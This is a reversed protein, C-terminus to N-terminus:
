SKSKLHSLVEHLQAVVAAGEGIAGGVRKVSGSRADGVAFVRAINSELPLQGNTNRRGSSNGGTLVFGKADLDIGSNKLWATAPDVGIFIFLNSIQKDVQHDTPNHRWCIRELRGSASGSLEVLETETHVDINDAAKIRDILYQSMNESLSKERVLMHIRSVHRCLFAAAQGASNGGGIIAVEQDRCLRAEIPSAWYWVGRGEFEKLNRAAPRRYHAGCAIVVAMASVQRAGSRILFTREAFELGTVEEPIVVQAGFKQAQVYARGTLERGSVGTPFGLYNEIRASAGAQGGYALKDFVIVSLGESAAYVATSLGAPGAGIVAVDYTSVKENLPIMGLARALEAESPNKLIIGNACVALPLSSPDPAYHAALSAADPDNAPDIVQYPYANRSLFGQLRIMNPDSEAGIFVPGGAGLEMLAVRRLILARLIKDGIEAEVIMLARLQPSTVLLSEVDSVAQADVLAPRGSLQAVEALFEGPGQEIIPALRGLPDRRNVRVSGEIIVFMGPSIEGTVFIYQSPAFRQIEGFRRIRDIEDPGLRPSLERARAADLIAIPMQVTM